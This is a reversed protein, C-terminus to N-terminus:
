KKYIPPKVIPMNYKFAGPTGSPMNYISTNPVVVPMNDPPSKVVLKDKDTIRLYKQIRDYDEPSKIKTDSIIRVCNPDKVRCLVIRGHSNADTAKSAVTIGLGLLAATLIMPSFAKMKMKAGDYLM